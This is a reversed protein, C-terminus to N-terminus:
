PLLYWYSTLWCHIGQITLSSTRVATTIFLVIKESIVGHLGSFTLWRKPSVYRRWRWPRFILQALYWRSLLHCASTGGFRRNAELPGYPMIDWFISSKSGQIILCSINSIWPAEKRPEHRYVLPATVPQKRLTVAQLHVEAASVADRVWEEDTYNTFPTNM